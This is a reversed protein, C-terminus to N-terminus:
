DQFGLHCFLPGGKSSLRALVRAVLAHSRQGREYFSIRTDPSSNELEFRLRLRRHRSNVIPPFSFRFLGNDVAEALDRSIRRLPPEAVGEAYISLVLRGAAARQHLGLVVDLIAWGDAEPVLEYFRPGTLRRSASMGGARFASPGMVSPTVWVARPLRSASAPQDRGDRHRAIRWLLQHWSCLTAELTHAQMFLDRAARRVRLRLPRDEVLRALAGEWAAATNPVLLGHIGDIIPRQYAPVRSCVIALGAWAYDRFKTAQKAANFETDDLPALGIDWGRSRLLRLSEDWRLERTSRWTFLDISDEPVERSSIIEFQLRPGFRRKLRRVAEQVCPPAITWQLGFFGIKLPRKGDDDVLPELPLRATDFGYIAEMVYPNYRRSRESLPPTTGAVLSCERLFRSMASRVTVQAHYKGIPTSPPLSPFDDDWACVLAARTQEAWELLRVMEPAFARVLFVADGRAVDAARTELPQVYEFRLRGQQALSRAAPLADIHTSTVSDHAVVLLRVPPGPPSALLSVERLWEQQMPLLAYTTAADELAGRRIRQRLEADDALARLAEYMGRETHPALYGTERHRVSASYVPMDSYIGPIGLAAYERYKNNTKARNGVSDILPALGIAWGATRLYDYYKGVDDFYPLRTVKPHNQLAPPLCDVFEARVPREFSDLMQRLPEVIVELDPSHVYRGGYGITLPERTTEEDISSLDWRHDEVFSPLRGVHIRRCRGGLRAAMESTFVWVVDAERIMRDRSERMEPQAYFQGHTTSPDLADFDDDLCYLTPLRRRRALEFLAAEEPRTCRLFLVADAANIAEGIEAFSSDWEYCSQYDWCGQRHLGAFVRDLISASAIRGETVMVFKLPTLPNM